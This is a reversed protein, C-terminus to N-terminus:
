RREEVLGTGQSHDYSGGPADVSDVVGVIVCKVAGKPLGLVQRGAGGEDLVVVRDGVGAGVSDIAVRVRGAPKGSPLIPRVLLQARGALDAIQVPTVVTGVVDGLFM